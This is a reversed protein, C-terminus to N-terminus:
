LDVALYAYASRGQIPYYTGPAVTTWGRVNVVNSVSIRLIMDKGFASFRYRGGVSVITRSPVFVDNDVTAPVRGQNSVRGDLSLGRMWPLHWDLSAQVLRSPLGVPLRGEAAALSQGTLRPRLFYAGAAVSLRDSIAGSLSLELGLNEVSVAVDYFNAADFNFSTGRVRQHPKELLV